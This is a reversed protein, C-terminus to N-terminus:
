PLQQIRSLVRQYAEQSNQGAYLEKASNYFNIAKCSSEYRCGRYTENRQLLNGMLEYALAFSKDTEIAEWYDDAALDRDPPQTQLRTSGRYVYLKALVKNGDSDLNQLKLFNIGTTFVELAKLYEQKTLYARGRLIYADPDGSNTQLFGDSDRAASDQDGPDNRDLYANARYFYALSKYKQDKDDIGKAEIAKSCSKIVESYKQRSYLVQCKLLNARIFEPKLAIARDADKLAEASKNKSYFYIAGRYLYATAHNADHDIAKSYDDLAGDKDGKYQKARGRRFYAEALNSDLQIARDLKNIAEDADGKGEELLSNGLGVYAKASNQDISISLLNRPIFKGM